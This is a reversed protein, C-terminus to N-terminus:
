GRNNLWIPTLGMERLRTLARDAFVKDDFPGVVVRYWPDNGVWRKEVAVPLSELILQARLQDADRSAKFSAAQINWEDPVADPPPKPPAYNEPQAKVESSSLIETFEFTLSPSDEGSRTDVTASDAVGSHQLIEPAYVALLIIAAGVIAGSSFSPGHFLVRAKPSAKRAPTRRSKKKRSPSAARAAFDKPM